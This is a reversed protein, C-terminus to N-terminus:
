EPPPATRRSNPRRTVFIWAALMIVGFGLLAGSIQTRVLARNDNVVRTQDPNDRDYEIWISGRGRGFDPPIIDCPRIVQGEHVGGNLLPFRVQYTISRGFGPGGFLCATDSDTILADVTVGFQAFRYAQYGNWVLSIGLVLVIVAAVVPLFLRRGIRNKM